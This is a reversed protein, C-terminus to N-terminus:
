SLIVTQNSITFAALAGEPVFTGEFLSSTSPTDSFNSYNMTRYTICQKDSKLFSAM